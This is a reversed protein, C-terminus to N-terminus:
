ESAAHERAVLYDVVELVGELSGAMSASVTYKGNVLMTPTGTVRAGRIKAQAQQMRANVGFSNYSDLFEERDVGYGAVFEALSEGDNLPRREGALADFLAVRSGSDTRVPTDLKKYHTGEKWEAANAQGFIALASLLLVVTRLARFM